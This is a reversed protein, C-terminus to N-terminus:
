PRFHFCNQAYVRNIQSVLICHIALKQTISILKAQDGKSGEGFEKRLNIIWIPPMQNALVKQISYKNQCHKM